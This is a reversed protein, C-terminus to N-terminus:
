YINKQCFGNLDFKGQLYKISKTANSEDCLFLKLEIVLISM